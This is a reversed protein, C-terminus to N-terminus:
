AARLHRDFLGGASSSRDTRAYTVTPALHARMADLYQLWAADCDM